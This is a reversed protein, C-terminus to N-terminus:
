LRTARYVYFIVTNCIEATVLPASECANIISLVPCIGLPNGSNQNGTRKKTSALSRKGSDTWNVTRTSTLRRPTPTTKPTRPPVGDNTWDPNIFDKAIKAFIPYRDGLLNSEGRGDLRDNSGQESGCVRPWNEDSFVIAILRPYEGPRMRDAGVSSAEDTSKGTTSAARDRICM